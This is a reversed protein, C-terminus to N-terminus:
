SSKMSLNMRRSIRSHRKGSSKILFQNRILSNEDLVIDATYRAYERTVILLVRGQYKQLLGPSIEASLDGVPDAVFGITKINEGILPLVQRLLPDNWDGKKMKEAYSLLVLMKFKSDAQLQSLYDDADLQLFDLLKM